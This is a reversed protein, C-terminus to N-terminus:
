PALRAELVEMPEVEVGLPVRYEMEQFALEVAFPDVVRQASEVSELLLVEVTELVTFTSFTGIMEPIEVEVAEEEAVIEHVVRNPAV